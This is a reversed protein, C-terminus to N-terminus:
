MVLGSNPAASSRGALYGAGLGAAGVGGLALAGTGLTTGTPTRAMAKLGHWYRGVRGIDPNKAALEDMAKSGVGRMGSVAKGLGHEGIEKMGGLLKKGLGLAEEAAQATGAEKIKGTAIVELMARKEIEGMEDFFADYLQKSYADM